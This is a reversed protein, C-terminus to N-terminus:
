RERKQLLEGFIVKADQNDFIIKKLARFFPFKYINNEGLLKLISPLSILGESKPLCKGTKALEEGVQYNYSYVSFGTAVLDGLGASGLATEKKGGLLEIIEAMEKAAKQILWGKFNGGLGLSNSIGLGIAYINKLVGALAVGRVDLSYELLLNTNIFLTEIKTFVEQKKIAVVGIGIIGKALEEALMPGFLLAYQAKNLLLEELIDAVTKLTNEEIGKSPSIVLTKKNLYPLISSLIERTVNTPVCLFLFDALPVIKALPKQNLVKFLDKDWLEIIIGPESKNQLIKEIARGIRGVGIIVIKNSM